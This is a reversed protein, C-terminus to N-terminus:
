VCVLSIIQTHEKHLATFFLSCSIDTLCLLLTQKQHTSRHSIENISPSKFALDQTTYRVKMAAHSYNGRKGFPECTPQIEVSGRYKEVEYNYSAIMVYFYRSQLLNISLLPISIEETNRSLQKSWRHDKNKKSSCIYQLPNTKNTRKPRLHEFYLKYQSYQHTTFINELMNCLAHGAFIYNATLFIIFTPFRIIEKERRVPKVKKTTM